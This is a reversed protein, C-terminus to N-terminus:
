TTTQTRSSQKLMGKTDFQGSSCILGSSLTSRYPSADPEEQGKVEEWRGWRTKGPPKWDGKNGVTVSSKRPLLHLMEELKLVLVHSDDPSCTGKLGQNKTFSNYPTNGPKCREMNEKPETLVCHRMHEGELFARPQPLRIM